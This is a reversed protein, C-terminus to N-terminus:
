RGIRVIPEAYEHSNVFNYEAHILHVEFVEAPIKQM